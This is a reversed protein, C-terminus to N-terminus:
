SIWGRERYYRLAGAHMPVDGNRQIMDSIQLSGFAPHLRRFAEFNEFVANTIEYATNESLNRTTVIAARVGFSDVDSPNHEYFGGPIVSAEYEPQDFLMRDINPGAIEVLVGDCSHTVDRILGNPHSVSYVIADVEGSCFARHQEVPASERIDAFDAHTLGLAALVSEIDARQRSGPNGISIRKGRLDAVTRIGLDQRAVVTLMDDHGAFLIRLDKAPGHSPFPARGAIANALVDSQVIGIDIQGTRLSEINAVSGSSPKEACRLHHRPTDLNFLRCISAGLPYDLGTSSAAGITVDLRTSLETCGAGVVIMMAVGCYAVIRRSLMRIRCSHQSRM